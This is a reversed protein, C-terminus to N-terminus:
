NSPLLLSNTKLYNKADNNFQYILLDNYSIPGPVIINLSISSLKKFGYHCYYDYEGSVFCIQEGNNKALDLGQQILKKGFGKGQYYKDVALPGLLLCHFQEILVRYFRITGIVVKPEQKLYSILSLEKIPPIKRYIYVTRNNRDKGFCNDLIIERQSFDSKVEKRIKIDLVM